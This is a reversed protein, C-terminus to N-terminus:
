MLLYYQGLFDCQVKQWEFVAQGAGYCINVTESANKMHSLLYDPTFYPLNLHKFVSVLISVTLM